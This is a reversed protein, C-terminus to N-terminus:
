GAKRNYKLSEQGFRLKVRQGTLGGLINTNGGKGHTLVGRPKSTLYGMTSRLSGQLAWDDLTRVAPGGRKVPRLILGGAL